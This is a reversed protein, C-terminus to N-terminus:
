LKCISFLSVDRLMKEAKILDFNQASPFLVIIKLQLIKLMYNPNYWAVM